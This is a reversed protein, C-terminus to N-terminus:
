KWPYGTKEAHEKLIGRLKEVDIDKNKKKGYIDKNACKACKKAQPSKTGKCKPCTMKAMWELSKKRGRMHTHRDLELWYDLLTKDVKSMEDYKM